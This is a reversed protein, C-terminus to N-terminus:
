AEGVDDAPSDDTNIQAETREESAQPTPDQRRAKRAAQREAKAERRKAKVALRQRKGPTDPMFAHYDSSTGGQSSM